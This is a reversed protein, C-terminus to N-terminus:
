RINEIDPGRIQKWQHRDDPSDRLENLVRRIVQQSFGGSALRSALRAEPLDPLKRIRRRACDLEVEDDVLRSVCQEAIQRNIGRRQLGALLANRGEPHRRIRSAVWQSAYEEDDIYGLEEMRRVSYDQADSSFGRKRLKLRLSNASHGATSLLSLAKQEAELGEAKLKIESISERSWETDEELGMRQQLDKLIFFSSGDSLTVEM